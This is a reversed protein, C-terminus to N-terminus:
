LLEKEYLPKYIAGSRTLNSEFLLVKDIAGDSSVFSKGESLFKKISSEPPTQRFRGVTLHPHFPRKEKKYGLCAMEEELKGALDCVSGAGEKVGVWLVRAKRESPFVGSEGYRTSFPKFGSCVEDIVEKIAEVRGKETEGIFKLTLHINDPKVWRANELHRKVNKQFDGVEKKQRRSLELAIFLRVM